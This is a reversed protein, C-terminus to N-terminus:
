VVDEALSRYLAVLRASETEWNWRARAASLCRERLAVRAAPPAAVVRLIAAGISAPRTPDCVEGLPGDPDDVVIARMPAFDSVVVPVGAAIAEFLKNPTSLRHNLTTPQLAMVDVDAGSVWPLLEDPSVPDVVHIRGGFRPERALAELRPRGSGYGLFAVHIRELGPELVAAALQEFGREPGFSGHYLALPVDAEVGVAHRLRGDPTAPPDWRPPCNHVAITVDPLEYRRGLEEIVADNVAVLAVCQRLMAAERRALRRRIWAPRSAYAGSDLFIEHSDYVVRGGHRRAAAIAAPLASLDHGHFVDAPPASRAAARAWGGVAFRWIVLWALTVEISFRGRGVRDIMRAALRLPLGGIRWRRRWGDPVPVTVLDFGDRREPGGRTSLIDAPRALVTVHQGASALSAAERLVRSDHTVDGYVFMAVRM